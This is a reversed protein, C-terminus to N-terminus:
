DAPAEVSVEQALDADDGSEVAVAESNESKQIAPGAAQALIVRPGLYVAALAVALAAIAIVGFRTRALLPSNNRRNNLLMDIRQQLQSKHVSAGPALVASRGHIRGALNALLLAYARPRGSKRVVHDDCAIERELSLKRGIWWIAPHFFLL